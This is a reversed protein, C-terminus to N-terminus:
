EAPADQPVELAPWRRLLDGGGHHSPTEKRYLDAMLQRNAAIRTALGNVDSVTFEREQLARRQRSRMCFFLPEDTDDDGWPRGVYDDEGSWGIVMEDHWTGHIVVNRLDGLERAERLLTAFQQHDAASWWRHQHDVHSLMMKFTNRLWDSGQGEFLMWVDDSSDPLLGGIMERFAEDTQASEAAVRGIARYLDPNNAFTRM